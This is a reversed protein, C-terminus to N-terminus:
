QAAIREALDNLYLWRETKAELQQKLDELKEGLEILAMYDSASKDMQATVESILDELNAIEDDIVAFERQENYSMKLKSNTNKKPNAPTQKKPQSPEEIDKKKLLYDSYDGSYMNVKGTKTVEFVSSVIKDLFYRDHSVAIVAGPFSLLYEELATLTQIDLDNTPEDLLLINPASILINMLYLRRKEGGSLKSILSHQLDPTFLFQEMLQSATMTGEKTKVESATNLIYQRATLNEDLVKSEQAFYGVKVTEGTEVSGCDPSLSGGIIRLLTTKGAGNEGVIGIRDDRKLNYSFNDIVTRGDYCKRVNELEILKKGLRSSVGTNEADQRVKPAEM